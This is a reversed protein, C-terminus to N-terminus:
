HTVASPLKRASKGMNCASLHQMPGPKSLPLWPGCRPPAVTMWPPAGPVRVASGLGSWGSVRGGQQCACMGHQLLRQMRWWIRCLLRCCVPRAGILRLVYPLNMILDAYDFGGGFQARLAMSAIDVVTVTQFSRAILRQLTAPVALTVRAGKEVLATVFRVFQLTDGLGHDHYLLVSRGQVDTQPTLSPLKKFWAEAHLGDPKQAHLAWGRGLQGAKLLACGYSAQMRKNGPAMRLAAEYYPLSETSRNLYTLACGMNSLLAASTCRDAIAGALVQRAEELLGAQLLAASLHEMLSVRQAPYRSLLAGFRESGEALQGACILTYAYTQQAQVNDPVHSLAERLLTLATDYRVTHHAILMAATITLAINGPRRALQDLILGVAEAERGELFLSKVRAPILGAARILDTDTISAPRAQGGMSSVTDNLPANSM